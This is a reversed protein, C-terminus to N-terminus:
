GLEATSHTLSLPSLLPTSFQVPPLRTKSGTKATFHNPSSDSEGTYVHCLRGQLNNQALSDGLRTEDDDERARM